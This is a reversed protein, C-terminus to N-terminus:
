IVLRTVGYAANESFPSKICDTLYRKRLIQWYGNKNGGGVSYLNALETGSKEMLEYAKKEIQVFGQIMSNFFLLHDICVNFQSENLQTLWKHMEVPTLKDIPRSPFITKLDTIPSPKLRGTFTSDNIPFREGNQLLSYYDHLTQFEDFLELIRPQLIPDREKFIFDAEGDQLHKDIFQCLQDLFQVEQLSYYNLLVQGGGNSAGGLLWISHIKHSYIGHEFSFFPKETLQKIALTSGLSSTADGVQNAGTALFGAISDTTGAHLVCNKSFGIARIITDKVKGLINGAPLAKPLQAMPMEQSFVNKVWHPYDKIEPNYGLKLLNNEDCFITKHTSIENLFYRNLWDIQHQIHINKINEPISNKYLFLAKALSSSVGRAATDPDNKAYTEICASEASAVKSDYMLVPTIAKGADDTLLLTSSTADCVIHEIHNTVPLNKIKNLLELLAKEWLEPSQSTQLTPRTQSFRTTSQQSGKLSTFPIQIEFLRKDLSPNSFATARDSNTQINRKVICGRIGSTGLDIGLIIRQSKGNFAKKTNM